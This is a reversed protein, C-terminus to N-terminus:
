LALSRQRQVAFNLQQLHDKILLYTRSYFFLKEPKYLYNFRFLNFSFYGKHTKRVM